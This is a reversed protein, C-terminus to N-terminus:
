SYSTFSFIKEDRYSKWMNNTWRLRLNLHAKRILLRNDTTTPCRWQQGLSKVNEDEEGSGSSQNLKYLHLAWGKEFPLYNCFLWFVNVFNFFIRRLFRQDLKLWVQCLVYKTPCSELIKFHLAMGKELPLYYDPSWMLAQWSKQYWHFFNVALSKKPWKTPFATEFYFIFSSIDIIKDYTFTLCLSHPINIVM